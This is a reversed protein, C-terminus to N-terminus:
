IGSLNVKDGVKLRNLNCFGSSLELVYDVPSGPSYITLSSDQTGPKPAEIEKDMKVIKEDKIWVIDIPILMDKMWFNPQVDKSDFIFLMGQNYNLNSKGGLGVRRIDSTDAIWVNLKVDKIIIEKVKPANVSSNAVTKSPLGKYIFGVVGIFAFTAVMLLFTNKM